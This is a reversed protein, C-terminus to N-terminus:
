VLGSIKQADGGRRRTRLHFNNVAVKFDKKTFDPWMKKTFYLEAYAIQWLLFNSIRKEGGTRIVLDPDALFPTDLFNHFNEETISEQFSKNHIIKEVARLIEDRGGYDLAINLVITTNHKTRYVASEVAEKLFLPFRELRGLCRIQIGDQVMTEINHDLFEKMFIFLEGIEAPTRAWNETSFFYMTIIPIKLEIACRVIQKVRISGQKYGEIVPKSHEKAWRRNGDLILAVHQLITLVSRM